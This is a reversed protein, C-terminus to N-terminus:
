ELAKISYEFSIFRQLFVSFYLRFLFRLNSITKPSIVESISLLLFSLGITVSNNTLILFSDWGAVSRRPLTTIVDRWVNWCQWLYTGFSFGLSMWTSRRWCTETSRRRSTKKSHRSLTEVPGLLSTEDTSEHVSYDHM